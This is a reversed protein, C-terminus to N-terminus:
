RSRAKWSKLWTSLGRKHEGPGAVSTEFAATQPHPPEKSEPDALDTEARTTHPVPLHEQRVCLSFLIQKKNAMPTVQARDTKLLHGTVSRRVPTGVQM